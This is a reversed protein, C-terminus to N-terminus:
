GDKEELLQEVEEVSLSTEEETTEEPENNSAHPENATVQEEANAQVNDTQVTVDVGNGQTSTAPANVDDLEMAQANLTDGQQSPTSTSEDEEPQTDDELANEEILRRSFGQDKEIRIIDPKGAEEYAAYATEAEIVVSEGDKKHLTYRSSNEVFRKRKMQLPSVGSNEEEATM